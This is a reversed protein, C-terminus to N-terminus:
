KSTKFSKKYIRYENSKKSKYIFIIFMLTLLILIPTWTQFEPIVYDSVIQVNLNGSLEYTFYLSTHTSNNNQTITTQPNGDILVSIEGLYVTPFQSMASVM